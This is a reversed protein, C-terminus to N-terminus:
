SSCTQPLYQIRGGACRGLMQHSSGILITLFLALLCHGQLPRGLRDGPPLQHLVIVAGAGQRHAVLLELLICAPSM